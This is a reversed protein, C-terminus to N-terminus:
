NVNTAIYIRDITSLNCVKDPIKCRNCLITFDNWSVVPYESNIICTLFINKIKEFNKWLLNTIIECESHNNKFVKKIKTYKMDLEFVKRLLEENEVKFTKFISRSVDFKLKSKIGHIEGIEFDSMKWTKPAVHIENMYLNTGKFKKVPYRDSLSFYKGQRIFYFFHKGSPLFKTYNYAVDTKIVGTEYKKEEEKGEITKFLEPM